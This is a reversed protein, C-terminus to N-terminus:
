ALPKKTYFRDNRKHKFLTITMSHLCFRMTTTFVAFAVLVSENSQILECYKHLKHKTRLTFLKASM